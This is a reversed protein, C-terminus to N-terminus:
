KEMLKMLVLAAQVDEPLQLANEVGCRSLPIAFRGIFENREAIWGEAQSLLHQKSWDSRARKAKFAYHRIQENYYALIQDSNFEPLWAHNTNKNYSLHFIRVGSFGRLDLCKYEMIYSYQRALQKVVNQHRSTTQSYTDINVTFAKYEPIWRILPFHNGYSYVMPGEAYLKRKPSYVDLSAHWPEKPNEMLRNFWANMAGWPTSYALKM